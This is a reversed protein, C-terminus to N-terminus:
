LWRRVRAQYDRYAGGFRRELYAEERGVVGYRITIALPLAIILMWPSRLAVVIGGYMLFFGLYIPNRTWGYIGSTVLVRARQNTPLPTAARSFSYAGMAFLLLGVSVLLGAVTRRVPDANLVAVPLPLLHDLAYGLVIAAPFLRVPRAIVGARGDSSEQQAVSDNRM